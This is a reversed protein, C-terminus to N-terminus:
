LRFGVLIKKTFLQMRTLMNNRVSSVIKIRVNGNMIKKM